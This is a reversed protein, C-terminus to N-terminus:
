FWDTQPIWYAQLGLDESCQGKIDVFSVEITENRVFTKSPHGM